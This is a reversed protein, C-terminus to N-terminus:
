SKLEATDLRFGTGRVARGQRRMRVGHLVHYGSFFSILQVGSGGRSPNVMSLVKMGESISDIQSRSGVRCYLGPRLVEQMV